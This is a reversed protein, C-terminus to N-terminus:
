TVPSSNLDLTKHKRRKFSEKTCKASTYPPKKNPNRDKRKKKKQEKAM